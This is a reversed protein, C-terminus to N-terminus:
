AEDEHLEPSTAVGAIWATAMANAPIYLNFDVLSHVASALLAAVLGLALWPMHGSRFATVAREFIRVALAMALAFGIVGLEALLQLYDNHAYDVASTPMSQRFPYLAREFTGLGAGTVPFARFLQWTESWIQVRGDTTIEPTRATASGRSSRM